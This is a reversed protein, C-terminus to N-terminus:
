ASDRSRRGTCSLAIYRSVGGYLGYAPLPLPYLFEGQVGVHLALENEFPIATGVDYALGWQPPAFINRDGPFTTTAGNLREAYLPTALRPGTRLGLTGHGEGRPLDNPTLRMVMPSLTTPACGAGAAVLAAMLLWRM